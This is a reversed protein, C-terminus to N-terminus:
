CGSWRITDHRGHAAKHLALEGLDDILLKVAALHGLSSTVHVPILDAEEEEGSDSSNGFYFPIEDLSSTGRRLLIQEFIKYNRSSGVFRLAVDQRYIEM